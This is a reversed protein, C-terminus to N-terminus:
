KFEVYLSKQTQYKEGDWYYMNDSVDQCPHYRGRMKMLYSRLSESILLVDKIYGDEMINDVNIGIMQMQEFVMHMLFSLEEQVEEVIEHDDPSTPDPPRNGWPGNIIEGM